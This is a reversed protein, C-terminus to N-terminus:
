AYRGTSLRLTSPKQGQNRPSKPTTQPIGGSKERDLDGPICFDCQPGVSCITLGALHLFYQCISHVDTFLLPHCKGVGPLNIKCVEVFKWPKQESSCVQACKSMSTVRVRAAQSKSVTEADRYRSVLSAEMRSITLGDFWRGPQRQPELEEMALAAAMPLNGKAWTGQSSYMESMSNFLADISSSLIVFPFIYYSNFHCGSWSSQTVTMSPSLNSGAASRGDLQDFSYATSEIDKSIDRNERM